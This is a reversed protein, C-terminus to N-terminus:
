GKVLVSPATSDFNRPRITLYAGTKNTTAIIKKKEFAPAEKPFVERNM